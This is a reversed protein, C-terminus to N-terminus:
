IGHTLSIMHCEDKEKQGLESLTTIDLDMWTAAFQM